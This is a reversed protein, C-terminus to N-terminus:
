MNNAKREEDSGPSIILPFSASFSTSPQPPPLSVVSDTKWMLCEEISTTEKQLSSHRGSHFPLSVNSFCSSHAVRPAIPDHRAARLQKACEHMCVYAHACASM